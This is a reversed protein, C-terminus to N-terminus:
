NGANADTATMQRGSRRALGATEGTRLVYRSSRRDRHIRDGRRGWSERQPDAHILSTFRQRGVDVFAEEARRGREREDPVAELRARYDDLRAQDDGM